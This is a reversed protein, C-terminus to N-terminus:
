KIHTHVVIEFHTAALANQLQKVFISLVDQNAAHLASTANCFAACAAHYAMLEGVYIGISAAPMEEGHQFGQRHTDAPIGHRFIPYLATSITGFKVKTGATLTFESM